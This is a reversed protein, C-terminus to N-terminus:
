PASYTIGLRKMKNYISKEDIGLLKAAAKKNGQCAELTDLIAQKEIDALTRGALSATSSAPKDSELSGLNLDDIGITNDNCFASARELVNELERVNGPWSYDHLAKQAEATVELNSTGIKKAIRTLVAAVLEPIDERRNRLAPVELPLVNLRFFLDERFSKERCKRALDQHTAAIVRVDVERVKTDGIRQVTRDQLFNLLKPQLELPLDGIEDLFLTGGHAMEARGPRDGVAGTFAGRVHGFLEAEVLDAPLSACSVLVLPGDKRNGSQHILRALTTKGTGSEGTILVTSDLRAVKRVQELLTKTKEAVGIYSALPTPSSVAQRLQRNEKELGSAKMAHQVRAILEDGDVPKTIYEFAGRKMAAVADRVEGFQSIMIVPVDPFEQRIRELCQMGSLGPMQLDLLAVSVEANMKQLAQTGDEAFIPQFGADQLHRGLLKRTVADDDAILVTGSEHGNNRPKATM